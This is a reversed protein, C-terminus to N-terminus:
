RRAPTSSGRSIVARLSGAQSAAFPSPERIVKVWEREVSVSVSRQLLTVSVIVKWTDEVDVLIGEVGRLPGDILEVWQGIKLFRHPRVALGSGVATQLHAMEKEDVPAAQSGVKVISQIGPTQLVSARQEPFQFRCFVYRPFLPFEVLKVRDSWKRRDTYLPVFSEFGMELLVQAASKEHQPKSTLAYWNHM